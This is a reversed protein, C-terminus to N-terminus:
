SLTLLIPVMTRLVSYSYTSISYGVGHRAKSVHISCQNREVAMVELVASAVSSRAGAGSATERVQPCVDKVSQTHLIM